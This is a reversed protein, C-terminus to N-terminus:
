CSGPLTQRNKELPIPFQTCVRSPFATLHTHSHTSLSQAPLRLSPSGHEYAQDLFGPGLWGEPSHVQGASPEQCSLPSLLPM